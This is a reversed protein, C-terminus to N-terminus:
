SIQESCLKPSTPPTPLLQPFQRMSEVTGEQHEAPPRPCHQAQPHLQILHLEPLKRTHPSPPYSPVCMGKQEWIGSACRLTDTWRLMPSSESSEPPQPHSSTPQLLLKWLAQPPDLNCRKRWPCQPPSPCFVLPGHIHAPASPEPAFTTSTSCSTAELGLNWPFFSPCSGPLVPAEVLCGM